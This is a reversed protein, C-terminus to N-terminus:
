DHAVFCVGGRGKVAACMSEAAEKTLNVARVRYYTKGHVIAKMTNLRHGGLLSSYKAGLRRSAARADAASPAGAFQVAYGGASVAQEAEVARRAERIPRAPTKPAAVSTPAYVRITSKAEPARPKPAAPASLNTQPFGGTAMTPLSRDVPPAAPAKPSASSNDVVTGDARVEFTKVKRPAPFFAGQASAQRAPAAAPSPPVPTPVNAAAGPTRAKAIASLDTPQEAGGVIKAGKVNDKNEFLAQNDKFDPNVTKPGRIKTPGKDAQITVVHHVGHKARWALTVGIGAVGALFVAAMGYVVKRRPAFPMFAATAQSASEDYGGAWAAPDAAQAQADGGWDPQSDGYPLPEAAFQAAAPEQRAAAAAYQHEQAQFAQSQDFDQSQDFYPEHPAHLPEAGAEPHGEKIARQARFMAEFPDERGAMNEGGVLRALETLPDAQQPQSPKPAPAAARLRREFEDLDIDPHFKVAYEGM